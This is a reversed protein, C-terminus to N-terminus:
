TSVNSSENMKGSDNLEEPGLVWNSPRAKTRNLSTRSPDDWPGSIEDAIRNDIRRRAKSSGQLTM